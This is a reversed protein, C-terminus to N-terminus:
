RRRRRSRKTRKRAKKRGFLLYAGLGLAGLTLWNVGAAATPTSAAPTAAPTAPPTPTEQVRTTEMSGRAEAAAQEAEVKAAAAQAEARKVEEAIAVGPQFMWDFLGGVGRYNSKCGSVGVYRQMDRSYSTKM